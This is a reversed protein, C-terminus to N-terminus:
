RADLAALPSRSAALIRTALTSWGATAATLFLSTAAKTETTIIGTLVFRELGVVITIRVGDGVLRGPSPPLVLWEPAAVLASLRLEDENTFHLALDPRSAKPTAKPSYREDVKSRKFGGTPHELRMHMALREEAGLPKAGRMLAGCMSCV